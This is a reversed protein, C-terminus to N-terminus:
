LLSFEYNPECLTVDLKCAIKGVNEMTRRRLSAGFYHSVLYSRVYPTDSCKVGAYNHLKRQTKGNEEIHCEMQILNTIVPIWSNADTGNNVYKLFDFFLTYPLRGTQAFYGLDDILQARNFAHVRDIKGSKFDDLIMRYNKEDYLVRYFGTQQRNFLVWDSSSWNKQETPRIIKPSVLWGDPQTDNLEINNATDFNYPIWWYELSVSSSAPKNVCREQAIQITNDSYNRTVTMLPYGNQNSWSSFIEHVSFEKDLTADEKVARQLSDFLDM